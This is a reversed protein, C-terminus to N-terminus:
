PLFYFGRMSAIIHWGLLCYALPFIGLLFGAVAWKRNIRRDIAYTMTLTLGGMALASLLAIAALGMPRISTGAPVSFLPRSLYLSWLTGVAGVITGYPIHYTM